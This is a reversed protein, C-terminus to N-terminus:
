TIVIMSRGSFTKEDDAVKLLNIKSLIRYSGSINKELVKLGHEGLMVRLGFLFFANMAKNERERWDDEMKLQM